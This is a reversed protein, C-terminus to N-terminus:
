EDKIMDWSDVVTESKDLRAHILENFYMSEIQGAQAYRGAKELARAFGYLIILPRFDSPIEPADPNASMEISPYDLVYAKLTYTDDPIPEICVNAGSPYWRQPTTGNNPLKGIQNTTIRKLGLGSATGYTYELFGVKNGTSAVIRTSSATSLSDIHKLCFGKEAVDREGDNIWRNIQADTYYDATSENILDRIKTRINELTYPYSDLALNNITGSWAVAGGGNGKGSVAYLYRFDKKETLTVVLTDVLDMYESDTYIYCYLTGYTGVSEDRVIRVYYPTNLSLVTASTDTTSVTSNRETLVLSANEWSLCLLDTNAAILAGIEDVSDCMGWLYVIETGTQATCNFNLTHEFDESFYSATFDKTLYVEVDDDLSALTLTAAAVTLVTPTDVETYGTYVQITSM